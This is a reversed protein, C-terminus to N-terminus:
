CRKGERFVVIKGLIYNLVIVIFQVVLKSLMDNVSCVTVLIYMLVMEVVLTGVRSLYFKFMEKLPSAHSRFVFKKNTVYAFLVSM